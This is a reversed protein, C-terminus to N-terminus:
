KSIHMERIQPVIPLSCPAPSDSLEVNLDKKKVIKKKLSKPKLDKFCTPIVGTEYHPQQSVLESCVHRIGLLAERSM